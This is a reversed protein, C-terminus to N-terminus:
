CGSYKFDIKESTANFFHERNILQVISYGKDNDEDVDVTQLVAGQVFGGFLGESLYVDGEEEDDVFTCIIENAFPTATEYVQAGGIIWVSEETTSHHPLFYALFNEPTIFTVNSNEKTVVNEPQSTIVVNLRDPLEGNPLSEFTKRGMVVTCGSTMKKFNKMDDKLRYMLKGNKGIALNDNIALILKIM